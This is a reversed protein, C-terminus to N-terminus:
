YRRPQMVVQAEVDLLASIKHMAQNSFTVVYYPSLPIQEGSRMLLELRHQARRLVRVQVGVVESLPREKLVRGRLGYQTVRVLDNARDFTTIAVQGTTFAVFIAFGILVMIASVVGENIPQRGDNIAAIITSIGYVLLGIFTWALLPVYRVTLTQRADGGTLQLTM